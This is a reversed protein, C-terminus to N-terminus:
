RYKPLLSDFNRPFNAPMSGGPIKGGAVLHPPQSILDSQVTYKLGRAEYELGTMPGFDKPWQYASLPQQEGRHVGKLYPTKQSRGSNQVLRDARRSNTAQLYGDPYDGCRPTRPGTVDQRTNRIENAGYLGQARSGRDTGGGGYVPSAPQPWGDPALLQYDNTM